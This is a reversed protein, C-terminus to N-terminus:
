PPRRISSAEHQSSRLGRAASKHIPTPKTVALNANALLHDQVDKPSRSSLPGCDRRGPVLPWSNGHRVSRRANDQDGTCRSNSYNSRGAAYAPVCLNSGVINTNEITPVIRQCQPFICLDHLHWIIMFCSPAVGRISGAAQTAGFATIQPLTVIPGLQRTMNPACTIASPPDILIPRSHMMMSFATRLLEARWESFMALLQRMPGFACTTPHVRSSSTKM